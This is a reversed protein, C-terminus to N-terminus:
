LPPQGLQRRSPKFHSNGIHWALLFLESFNSLFIEPFFCLSFICVLNCWYVRCLTIYFVIAFLFIPKGQGVNNAWSCQKKRKRM